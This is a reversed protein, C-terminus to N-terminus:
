ESLSPTSNRGHERLKAVWLFTRSQDNAAWNNDIITSHIRLVALWLHILTHGRGETSQGQDRQVPHVDRHVAGDLAARGEDVEHQGHHHEPLGEGGDEEGEADAEDGHADEDGAEPVEGEVPM